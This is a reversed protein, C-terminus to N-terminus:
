LVIIDIQKIEINNKWDAGMVHIQSGGGKTKVKKYIDKGSKTKKQTKLSWKDNVSKATSRICSSQPPRKLKVEVKQRFFSQDFVENSFQASIGLETPSVHPSDTLFGGIIPGNDDYKCFQYFSQEDGSPIEDIIVPFDLDICNVYSAIEKMASKREVESM